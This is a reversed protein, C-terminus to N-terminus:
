PPRARRRALELQQRIEPNGPSQALAAAFHTVADAHRGEASAALGLNYHGYISTPDIAVARAFHAVGEKGRGLRVLALGLSNHMASVLPARKGVPKPAKALVPLYYDAVTQFRGQRIWATGLAVQAELYGPNIALCEQAQAIGQETKGDALLEAALSYHAVYSRPNVSLTHRFLSDTSQWARAYAFSLGALGVLMAAAVGVVRMAMGLRVLVGVLALSAGLLPVYLYHDAVTTIDQFEFPVLGLVPALSLCFIAWGCLVLARWARAGTPEAPPPRLLPYVAAAAGAAAFLAALVIHWSPVQHLVVQPSRGYDLALPYPVLLKGVYFWGADAAVLLRQPLSPVLELNLNPQLHKTVLVFPVLPAWFFIPDQTSAKLSKGLLIRDVLVLIGPFVVASPKALMAALFFAATPLRRSTRYYSWIGLLGLTGALAGKLESLWAVTEVQAPHLAFFCAGLLAAGRALAESRGAPQPRALRLLTRLLAFVLVANVAHLALNLGHFLPASQALTLFASAMAACSWWLTYTIPIYLGFYSKTWIASLGALSPRQLAPNDLLHTYDDLRLYGAALVPSFAAVTLLVLWALPPLRFVRPKAGTSAAM